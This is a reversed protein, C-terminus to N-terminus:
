GTPQRPIISLTFRPRKSKTKVNEEHKKLLNERMEKIPIGIKGEAALEKFGQMTVLRLQKNSESHVEAYPVQPFLHIEHKRNGIFWPNIDTVDILWTRALLNPLSSYFENDTAIAPLIYFAVNQRGGAIHFYLIFHQDNWTNNNIEFIYVPGNISNRVKKARKYQLASTLWSPPLMAITRSDYGENREQVLTTGFAFAHPDCTRCISLIEYTMNMELTKENLMIDGGLSSVRITKM